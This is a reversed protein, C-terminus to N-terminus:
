DKIPMKWENHACIKEFMPRLKTKVVKTSVLPFEDKFTEYSNVFGYSDDCIQLYIRFAYDYNTFNHKCNFVRDCKVRGDCNEPDHRYKEFPIQSAVFLRKVRNVLQHSPRLPKVGTLRARITKWKEYYKDYFRKETLPQKKFKKSTYKIKIANPIKISRLVRGILERNCSLRINGYKTPGGNVENEILGWIDEPISPEGCVWRSCRENFYFIRKYSNSDTPLQSPKFDDLWSPGQVRGCCGCVSDGRDVIWELGNCNECRRELIRAPVLM